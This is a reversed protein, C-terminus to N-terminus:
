SISELPKPGKGLYCKSLLGLLGAKTGLGEDPRLDGEPESYAEVECELAPGERFSCLLWERDAAIFFPDCLVM